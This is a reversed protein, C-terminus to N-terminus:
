LHLALHEVDIPKEPKRHLQESEEEELNVLSSYKSLTM